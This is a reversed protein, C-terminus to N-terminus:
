LSEWGVEKAADVGPQDFANINWLVSQCYIRHEYMAILQGLSEPTVKNLHILSSSVKIQQPNASGLGNTLASIKKYALNNISEYCDEKVFIYEIHNYHTGQQLLQYYAHEAQPGLGGWVIPATSYPILSQNKDTSKGNSEMVLQQLFAPLYNLSECYTLLLHSRSKFFNINWIDLLSLIVPINANFDTNKFHNDMAKAGSLLSIFAKEGLMIALSLNVASCFSYRGGVWDWIPLINTIGYKIALEAQGTIAIIQERILKKDNGLSKIVKKLNTITENTTFSKSTVIFITNQIKLNGLLNAIRKPDDNSIYHFNIPKDNYAQLAYVAMKPGLDSGGIGINVVDTVNKTKFWKNNRIKEAIKFIKDRAEIIQPIINEGNVIISETNDARLASHLAPRKQNYNVNQGNLLNDIYENLKYSEALKILNEITSQNIAQFSYDLSLCATEASYLKKRSNNNVFLEKPSMNQIAQFNMRLAKWAPFLNFHPINEPPSYKTVKELTYDM